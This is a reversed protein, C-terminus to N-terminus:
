LFWVAFLTILGIVSCRILFWFILSVFVYFVSHYGRRFHVSVCVLLCIMICKPSHTMREVFSIRIWLDFVRDVTGMTPVFDILRFGFFFVFLWVFCVSKSLLCSGIGFLCREMIVFHEVWSYESVHIIKWFMCFLFYVGMRCLFFCVCFIGGWFWLKKIHYTKM